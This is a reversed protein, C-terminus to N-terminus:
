FLTFKSTTNQDKCLRKKLWEYVYNVVGNQVKCQLEIYKRKILQDKHYLTDKCIKCLIFHIKIFKLYPSKM